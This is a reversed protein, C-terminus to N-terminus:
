SPGAESGSAKKGLLIDLMGGLGLRAEGAAYERLEEELALWFSEPQEFQAACAHEKWFRQGEISSSDSKCKQGIFQCERGDPDPEHWSLTALGGALIPPLPREVSAPYENGLVHLTVARDGESVAYWWDGGSIGHEGKPEHECAVRCDYGPERHSTRTPM